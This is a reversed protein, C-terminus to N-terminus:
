TNRQLTCILITLLTLKGITFSNNEDRDNLLKLARLVSYHDVIKILIGKTTTNM